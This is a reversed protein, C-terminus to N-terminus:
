ALSQAFCTSRTNIPIFRRCSVMMTPDANWDFHESGFIRRFLETKLAVESDACGFVVEPPENARQQATEAMPQSGGRLRNLLSEVANREAGAQARGLVDRVAQAEQAFAPAAFAPLGAGLALVAALMTTRSTM